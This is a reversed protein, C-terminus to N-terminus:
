ARPAKPRPWPTGFAPLTALEPHHAHWYRHNLTVWAGEFLRTVADSVADEYSPHVREQDRDGRDAYYVAWGQSAPEVVLRENKETPPQGPAWVAGHPFGHERVHAAVREPTVSFFDYFDVNAFNPVPLQQLAWDGIGGVLLAEIQEQENRM